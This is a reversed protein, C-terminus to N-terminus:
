LELEAAYVVNGFWQIDPLTTYFLQKSGRIAEPIRTFKGM